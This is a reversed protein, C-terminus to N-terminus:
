KLLLPLVQNWKKSCPWGILKTGPDVSEGELDMCNGNHVSRIPCFPRSFRGKSLGIHSSINGLTVEGDSSCAGVELLETENGHSTFSCPQLSVPSGHQSNIVLCMEGDELQMKARVRKLHSGSLHGEKRIIDLADLIREDVNPDFKRAWLMESLELVPLSEMTIITPSRGCHDANPMLCKDKNRKGLKHTVKDHEWQDFQV